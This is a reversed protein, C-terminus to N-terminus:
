KNTTSILKELKTNANGVNKKTFNDFSDGCAKLAKGTAEKYQRLYEKMQDTTSGAKSSINEAVTIFNTSSLNFRDDIKDVVGLILGQTESSKEGAVKSIKNLSDEATAPIGSIGSSIDSLMSTANKGTEGLSSGISEAMAIGAASIEGTKTDANEKISGFTTNFNDRTKALEEDTPNRIALIDGIIGDKTKASEQRMAEFLTSLNGQNTEAILNEADVFSNYIDIGSDVLESRSNTVYESLGAMIEQIRQARAETSISADTAVEIVMDRTKIAAEYAAQYTELYTQKSLNYADQQAQLLAETAKNVADEDATYVFDYNGAANRQLRMQSKADRADELAIQKQLIDLQAEAYKIDYETIASIEESVGKIDVVVKKKDRLYTLEENMSDTIRKQILASSNQSDNLLNQYKVQLKQIEYARNYDDLYQNDNRAAM